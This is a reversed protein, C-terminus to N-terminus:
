APWDDALIQTSTTHDESTPEKTTHIVQVDDDDDTQITCNYSDDDDVGHLSSPVTDKNLTGTSAAVSEITVATCVDGVDTATTSLIKKNIPKITTKLYKPFNQADKFEKSQKSASIKIRQLNEERVLKLNMVQVDIKRIKFQQQEESYEVLYEKNDTSVSSSSSSSSSLSSSPPPMTSSIITGKFNEKVDNEGEIKLSVIDSNSKHVIMSGSRQVNISSPKFVYQLTALLGAGISDEHDFVLPYVKGIEISSDFLTNKTM